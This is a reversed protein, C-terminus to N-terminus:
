PGRTPPIPPPRGGGAVGTGARVTRRRYREAELARAVAGRTRARRSRRRCPEVGAPAGPHLSRPVWGAPPVSIQCLVRGAGDLPQLVGSAHENSVFFLVGKRDGLHPEIDARFSCNVIHSLEKPGELDIGLEGRILSAAGDAALLARGTLTETAGTARSHVELAASEDTPSGGRVLKTAETVFRVDVMGTARIGELLIAEILEQSAMVPWAPSADPGPGEFGKSEIVGLQKGTATRLFRIPSKWGPPTDISRLRKYVAPGWGRAIEMKRTNLNRTKPHWPTSDHKEILVSRGGCRALELAAGLGVPGAGVIIVREGTNEKM